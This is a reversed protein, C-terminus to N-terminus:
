SAHIHSIIWLSLIGPDQSLPDQSQGSRVAHTGSLEYRTTVDNITQWFIYFFHDYTNHRKNTFLCKVQGEILLHYCYDFNFSSTVVFYKLKTVKLANYVKSQHNNGTSSSLKM